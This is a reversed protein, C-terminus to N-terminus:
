FLFFRQHSSLSNNRTWSTPAPDSWVYDPRSWWRVGGTRTPSGPPCAWAVHKPAPAGSQPRSSATWAPTGATLDSRKRRVTPQFPCASGSLCAGLELSTWYDHTTSKPVNLFTIRFSELCWSKYTDTWEGAMAFGGLSSAEAQPDCVWKECCEGPVQVRRPMPCDPGPLMMDLNCRPVCTIQGDRCVCQYKCSPIFTQGNQYVSGDLVCVDGGHAPPSSPTWNSQPKIMTHDTIMDSPPVSVLVSARGRASTKPTTVGCGKVRTAPVWTRAHRGERVPAFWAAPATMWSWPCVLLVCPPSM